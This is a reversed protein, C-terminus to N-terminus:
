RTVVVSDIVNVEGNTCAIAIVSSAGPAPYWPHGMVIPSTLGSLSISSKAPSIQQCASANVSEWSVRFKETHGVSVPGDFGNVKVDLTPRPLVTPFQVSDIVSGRASDSFTVGSHKNLIDVAWGRLPKSAPTPQMRLIEAAIAVLKVGTERTSSLNAFVGVTFSSALSVLLATVALITSGLSSSSNSDKATREEAGDTM